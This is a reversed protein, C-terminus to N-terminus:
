GISRREGYFIDQFCLPFEARTLHWLKPFIAGAVCRNNAGRKGPFACNTATSSLTAGFLNRNAGSCSAPLAPFHRGDVGDGIRVPRALFIVCGIGDGEASFQAFDCGGFFRKKARQPNECRMGFAKPLSQSFACEMGFGKPMAQLHECGIGFRETSGQDM